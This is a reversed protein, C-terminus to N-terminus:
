SKQTRSKSEETETSASITDGSADGLDKLKGILDNLEKMLNNLDQENKNFMEANRKFSEAGDETAQPEDKPMSELDVHNTALQIQKKRILDLEKFMADSNHGSTKTEGKAMKKFVNELTDMVKSHDTIRFDSVTPSNSPDM